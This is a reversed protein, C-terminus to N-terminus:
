KKAKKPAPQSELLKQLAQLHEPKLVPLTAAGSSDDDGDEVVEAAEATAPAASASGQAALLSDLLGAITDPDVASSAASPAGRKRSTAKAKAKPAVPAANSADHMSAVKVLAKLIETPEGALADPVSPGAAPTAGHSTSTSPLAPLSAALKSMFGGFASMMSSEANAPQPPPPQHPYPDLMAGRMFSNQVADFGAPQPAPMLGPAGYQALSHGHIGVLSQQPTPIMQVIGASQLGNGMLGPAMCGQASLSSLPPMSTAHSMGPAQGFGAASLLPGLTQLRQDRQWKSALADLIDAEDNSGRPERVFNQQGGRQYRDNGSYSSNTKNYGNNWNRSM